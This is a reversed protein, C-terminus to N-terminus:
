RFLHLGACDEWQPRTVSINSAPIRAGRICHHTSRVLSIAVRSKVYRCTRSHPEQWKQALPSATLKVAAEAEVRLLGDVSAVFPTFHRRENLCTNLYKRKKEHDATELCKEPTKCQYLVTDTNVVRM